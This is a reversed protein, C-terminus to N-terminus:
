PPPPSPAKGLGKIGKYKYMIVKQIQRTQTFDTFQIFLEQKLSIPFCIFDPTESSDTEEISDVSKIWVKALRGRQKRSIYGIAM